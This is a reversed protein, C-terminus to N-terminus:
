FGSSPLMAAKATRADRYAGGRRRMSRSNNCAINFLDYTANYM